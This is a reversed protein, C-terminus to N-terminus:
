YFLMARLCLTSSKLGPLIIQIGWRREKGTVKIFYFLIGKTKACRSAQCGCGSWVGWAHIDVGWGRETAHLTIFIFTAHIWDGLSTLFFLWLWIRSFVVMWWGMYRTKWMSCRSWWINADHVAAFRISLTRRFVKFLFVQSVLCGWVYFWSHYMHYLKISM